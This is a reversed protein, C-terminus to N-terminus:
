GRNDDAFADAMLGAETLDARDEQSLTEQQESISAAEQTGPMAVATPIFAYIAVNERREYDAKGKNEGRTKTKPLFYIGKASALAQALNDDAVISLDIYDKEETPEVGYVEKVMQLLKKGFTVTGQDMVSSVPTGDENYSTQAFMDVRGAKKPVHAVMLFPVPSSMQNWERSDIVDFGMGQHEADKSSYELNFDNVLKQSPYVAGTKFVRIDGIIPNREKKVGGKRNAVTAISKPAVSVNGLFSLFSM